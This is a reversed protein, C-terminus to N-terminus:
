TYTYEENIQAELQARKKLKLDKWKLKLYQMYEYTRIDYKQINHLVPVYMYTTKKFKPETDNKQRQKTNVEVLTM